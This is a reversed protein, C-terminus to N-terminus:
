SFLCGFEKNFKAANVPAPQMLSQWQEGLARKGVHLTFPLAVVTESTCHGPPVPIPILFPFLAIGRDLLKERNELPEFPLENLQGLTHKTREKLVGLSSFLPRGFM